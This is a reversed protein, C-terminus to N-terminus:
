RSHLWDMEDDADMRYSLHLSIDWLYWKHSIDWTITNSNPQGDFTMNRTKTAMVIRMVWPQLWLGLGVSLKVKSPFRTYVSICIWFLIDRFRNFCPDHNGYCSIPKIDVIEPPCHLVRAQINRLYKDNTFKTFLNIICTSICPDVWFISCINCADWASSM